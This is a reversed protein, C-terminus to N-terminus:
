EIVEADMIAEPGAALAPLALTSLAQQIQADLQANDTGGDAGQDSSVILKALLEISARVERLSAAAAQVSRSNGDGSELMEEARELVKMARAHLDTAFGIITAVNHAESAAQPSFSLHNNRHRRVAERSMGYKGAITGDSEGRKLICDNIEARKPHTCCKCREPM